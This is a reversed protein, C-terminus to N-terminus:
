LLETKGQWSLSRLPDAQCQDQLVSPAHPLSCRTYKQDPEETCICYHFQDNSQSSETTEATFDLSKKLLFSTLSSSLCFTILQAAPSNNPVAFEVRLLIIQFLSRIEYETHLFSSVGEKLSILLKLPPLTPIGSSPNIFHATSIPEIKM